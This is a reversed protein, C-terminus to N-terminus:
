YPHTHDFVYMNPNFYFSMDIISFYLPEKLVNKKETIYFCFLFLLGKRSFYYSAVPGFPLPFFCLHISDNFNQPQVDL